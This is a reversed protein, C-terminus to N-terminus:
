RAAEYREGATVPAAITNGPWPAPCPYVTSYACFPNRARNFDLLYWTGGLPTVPVFRGAPYTTQGSTADRFYIMLEDEGTSPDPVRYVHLHTASGGVRVALTGADTADVEVGDPSLIRAHRPAEAPALEARFIFASDPPYWTPREAKHATGFVSLVTRGREGGLYLTYAGLPILRNRPLPRIAGGTTLTLVGREESVRSAPQGTLPVDADAPGLTLGSGVPQQIIAKLPSNPASSLWATFASRERALPSQATLPSRYATFLLM